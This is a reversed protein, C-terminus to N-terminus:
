STTFFQILLDLNISHKNVDIRVEKCFDDDITMPKNKNMYSSLQCGYETTEKTHALINRKLIIDKWFTNFVKKLRKLEDRKVIAESDGSSTQIHINLYKLHSKLIISLVQAKNDLSFIKMDPSIMRETIEQNCENNGFYKIIVEEIKVELYITEAIVLGRMNILEQRSSLNLNLVIKFKELLQQGRNSYFVYELGKTDDLFNSHGSYLIIMDYIENNRIKQILNSGNDSSSLNYDILYMNIKESELIKDMDDGNKLPYIIPEFGLETLHTEILLKWSDIYDFDDEIWLIKYKISM